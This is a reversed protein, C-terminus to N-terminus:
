GVTSGILQNAHLWILEAVDAAEHTASYVDRPLVADGIRYVDGRGAAM